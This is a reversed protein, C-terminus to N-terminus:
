QPSGACKACVEKFSLAERGLSISLLPPLPTSFSLPASSGLLPTPPPVFRLPDLPFLLTWLELTPTTAPHQAIRNIHKTHNQTQPQIHRAQHRCALACKREIATKKLWVFPVYKAAIAVSTKSVVEELNSLHPLSCCRDEFHGSTSHHTGSPPARIATWLLYRSPSEVLHAISDWM